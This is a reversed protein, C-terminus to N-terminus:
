IPPPDFDADLHRGDLFVKVDPHDSGLTRTYAAETEQFLKEAEEKEGAARLDASLNAACSLALPHEPGLLARLRRLTGRGLAVADGYEGLAALDSALNTAITLTYHHDRGLSPELGALAEENLRRATVPDNQVRYMIALNGTCGHNYPHAPGYIRPYRRVTDEALEVAADSEGVTRLLNALCMAAALTDPHDLDFQRVCRAHVDEALERARDLDPARRWAISLDRGTRLTRNHEPGFEEVAYAYADEGLDCAEAYDGCLRVARALGSWVNLLTLKDVAEPGFSLCLQYAEHLRDRSAIYDSSLGLDLALNNVTRITRVDETGYKEEFRRLLDEDQERAQQFRGEARLDACFGRLFRLSLDDDRGLVREATPLYKRSLKASEDYSGLERLTNSQELRLSLVDPHEEGSTATWDDLFTDILTRASAFDGSAALYRVINLCVDRAEPRESFGIGSPTIHGLLSAYRDWNGPELPDAPAYGALLRHVQGRMRDQEAGSLQERMLAQILRHIQLTRGPIDLRALAYRGLEGVVRSLRIPDGILTALREDLAVRPQSFADRPIPEPGFFACCRLLEIAEPLKENLSAVSLGWAATMSVPYESPKGEALLQATRERLLRLYEAVGMGTEAQLAGAQELALPLDGLEDALRGADGPDIGKPVRKKLFEVSEKRSFVDVAVTDVVGEWRHNRSTILVHGPGHPIIDHLDEPQDANDFILLWRDYPEGRRLAELVAKAADEVGSATAPPLGLSPALSALSARVLVPQDAPIWWVVEYESRYRYAYEVAMQTKGVGGMGHLAHPVVATVQGAIGDRLRDLLEQRGTFNKNRQPVRGWVEPM